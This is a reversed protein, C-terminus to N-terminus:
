INIKKNARHSKKSRRRLDRKKLQETQPESEKRALDFQPTLPPKTSAETKRSDLYKKAEKIGLADELQIQSLKHGCHALICQVVSAHENEVANTLAMNIDWGFSLIREGALTLLAQVANLHGNQAALNLAIFIHETLIIHNFLEEIVSQHGKQAAYRLAMGKGKNSVRGLALLEHAVSAHGNKAAYALAIEICKESIEQSAQTLLDKVVPLDGTWAALCLANGSCKPALVKICLFAFYDLADEVNAFSRPQNYLESFIDQLNKDGDELFQEYRQLEAKFQDPIEERMTSANFMVLEFSEMLKEENILGYLHYAGVIVFADENKSRLIEAMIENRYKVGEPDDSKANPMIKNKYPILGNNDSGQDIPEFNLLVKKTFKLSHTMASSFDGLKTIAKSLRREVNAHRSDDLECCFRNIGLEIAVTIAIKETLSSFFSDHSEGFLILVPKKSAASRTKAAKYEEHFYRHVKMLEDLTTNDSDLEKEAGPKM